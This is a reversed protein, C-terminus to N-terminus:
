ADRLAEKLEEVWEIIGNFAPTFFAPCGTTEAHYSSNNLGQNERVIRVTEAQIAPERGCQEILKMLEPLSSLAGSTPDQAARNFAHRLVPFTAGHSLAAGTAVPRVIASDLGWVVIAANEFGSSLIPIILHPSGESGPQEQGLLQLYSALVGRSGIQIDGGPSQLRRNLLHAAATMTTIQLQAAVSRRHHADPLDHVRQFEAETLPRIYRGRNNQDYTALGHVAAAQTRYATVERTWWSTIVVSLLAFMQEKRSKTAFESWNGALLLDITPKLARLPEVRIAPPLSGALAERIQTSIGRPIHASQEPTDM